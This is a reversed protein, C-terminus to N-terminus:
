STGNEDMDARQVAYASHLIQGVYSLLRRTDNEISIPSVFANRAVAPTEM